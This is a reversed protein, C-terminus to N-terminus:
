RNSRARITMKHLRRESHGWSVLYQVQEQLFGHAERETDEQQAGRGVGKDANRPVFILNMDASSGLLLRYRGYNEVLGRFRAM